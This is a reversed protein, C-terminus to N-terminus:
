APQRHQGPKHQDPQSAARKLNRGQTLLIFHQPGAHQVQRNQNQHADARQGLRRLKRKMEPQRPRHGRRGRHARIQVRGRHDLRPHIQQRPQTWRQRVTVFPPQYERRHAHQGHQHAPIQRKLLRVQFANQRIRRDTRQAHQDRQQPPVAFDRRLRRHQKQQHMRQVFARQKHHGPRNVVFGPGAINPHQAPQRPHHRQQRQRRPQRGQRHRAHRQKDTKHALFKDVLRCQAIFRAHRQFQRRHLRQHCQGRQHRVDNKHPHRQQHCHNREGPRIRFGRLVRM